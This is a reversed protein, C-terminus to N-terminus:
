AYLKHTGVAQMGMLFFFSISEKRQLYSPAYSINVTITSLGRLSSGATNSVATVEPLSMGDLFQQRTLLPTPEEGQCQHDWVKTYQEVIQNKNCDIIMAGLAGNIGHEFNAYIGIWIFSDILWHLLCCNVCEVILWFKGDAHLMLCVTVHHNMKGDSDPAIIFTRSKNEKDGIVKQKHQMMDMALEDM